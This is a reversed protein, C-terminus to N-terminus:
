DRGPKHPRDSEARIVDYCECCHEELLGRNLITIHGRRYSIAGIAQLKGASTTIGERRVGLMNAIVGHTITLDNSHARDQVLLLWRCLQQDVTHHQNCVANQAMQTLLTQAYCLVTKQLHPSRNFEQEAVDRPLRYAFGSTIVSEYSLAADNGILASLGVLGEHGIIAVQTSSGDSMLYMESVICDVPFYIYQPAHNAERLVAGHVLSVLELSSFVRSHQDPPLAALLQNRQPSPGSTTAFAPTQKIM